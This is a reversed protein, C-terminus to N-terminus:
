AAAAQFVEPKVKRLFAVVFATIVGEIAMIPLNMLLVATAAQVFGEGTSVLAIGVVLGSGFVAGAGCAFAAAASIWPKDSSLAPRCVLGCLAAPLAMVCTNIGLTTIGGFQFLLAQLGLGVMIAPFAVWGLMLGLLGNLILHASSPGVPVHILSAVFFAAALMATRPISEPALRKLGVALCPLALAWGVALVPPSLIGESIHM